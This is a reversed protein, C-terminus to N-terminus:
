DQTRGASRGVEESAEDWASREPYAEALVAGLVAEDGVWPDASREAEHGRGSRGAWLCAM